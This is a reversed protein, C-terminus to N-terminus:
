YINIKVCYNMLGVWEGGEMVSKMRVPQSHKLNTMLSM